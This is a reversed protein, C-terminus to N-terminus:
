CRSPAKALSRSHEDNVTRDPVFPCMESAGFEPHPIERAPAPFIRGRGRLVDPPSVAPGVLNKAMSPRRCGLTVGVHGRKLHLVRALAHVLRQPTRSSSLQLGFQLGLGHVTDSGGEGPSRLPNHAASAGPNSGPLPAFGLRMLLAAGYVPSPSAELRAM